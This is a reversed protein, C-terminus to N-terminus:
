CRPMWGCNNLVKLLRRVSSVVHLPQDAVMNANACVQDNLFWCTRIACGLWALAQVTQVAGAPVLSPQVFNLAFGTLYNGVTQLLKRM